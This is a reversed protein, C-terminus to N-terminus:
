LTEGKKKWPLADLFNRGMKTKNWTGEGQRTFLLDALRDRHPNTVLFGRSKQKRIILKVLPCSLCTYLLPSPCFKLLISEQYYDKGNPLKDLHPAHRGIDFERRHIWPPAETKGKRKLKLNEETRQARTRPECLLAWKWVPPPWSLATVRM